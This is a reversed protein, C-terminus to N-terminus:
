RWERKKNIWLFVADSIPVFGISIIFMLGVFIFTVLSGYQTASHNWMFLFLGWSYYTIATYNQYSHNHTLIYLLFLLYKRPFSNKRVSFKWIYLSIKHMLRKETYNMPSCHKKKWTTTIRWLLPNDTEHNPSHIRLM